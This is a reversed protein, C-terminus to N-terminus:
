PGRKSPQRIPNGRGAWIKTVMRTRLIYKKNKFVVGTGLQWLEVFYVYGICLIEDNKMRRMSVDWDDGRNRGSTNGSTMQIQRLWWVNVREERYIPCGM